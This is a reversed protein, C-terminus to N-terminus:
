REVVPAREPFLGPWPLPATKGPESLTVAIFARVPLARVAGDKDAQVPIDLKLTAARGEVVMPDRLLQVMDLLAWPGDFSFVATKRSASLYPSAGSSRPSLPADNAFRLTIRVPEGPRWRLARPADRLKLTQDGITLAWDIIKNGDIEANPNARFRVAVDYAAPQSPDAPVLPSLLQRAQALQLAFDRIPVASGEPVNNRAFIEPSVAPLRALLSGVESLDAPPLALYDAARQGSRNGAFPRRGKLMRNFDQAFSSWQEVFSRRDLTMCRRTVMRHLEAHREAFYNSPQRPPENARLVALCAPADLERGLDLLFRELKGM